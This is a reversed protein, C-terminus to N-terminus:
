PCSIKTEWHCSWLPIFCCFPHYLSNDTSGEELGEKTQSPVDEEGKVQKRKRKKSAGGKQGTNQLEAM